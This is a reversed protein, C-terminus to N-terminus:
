FNTNKNAFTQLNRRTTKKSTKSLFYTFGTIEKSRNGLSSKLTESKRNNFNKRLILFLDNLSKLDKTLDDVSIPEIRPNFLYKLFIRKLSEFLQKETENLKSINEFLIELLPLYTVLFGWIDILQIFVEDLYVRYQFSSSSKDQKKTFHVLIEILYNTIYTLTISEYSKPDQSSSSSPSFLIFFIHNTYQYHAGGTKKIWFSIYSRVFPNLQSPIPLQDQELYRVYKELFDNTFLVISFPVNFQFPRNIWVPPIPHNQFPTYECSLGWDILRTKVNNHKKFLSTDVLINSDKIDNHYVRKNNMPVIGHVLLHILSNNLQFLKTYTINKYIYDDVPLGGYPMNLALLKDLKNNINQKTINKKPLATCKKEFHKLDKKTLKKPKCLTFGNILFYHTYNAISQLKNRITLIEDYEEFAHQKTMLKSITKINKRTKTNTKANMKTDKCILAPEFVCGFGGAAIVEGGKIGESNQEERNKVNNKNNTKINNKNNTKM